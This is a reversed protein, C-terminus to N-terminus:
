AGAFTVSAMKEFLRALEDVGASAAAENSAVEMLSRVANAIFMPTGCAMAAHMVAQLDKTSQSLPQCTTDGGSEL